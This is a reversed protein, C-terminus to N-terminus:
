KWLGEYSSIAVTREGWSFGADFGQSYAVDAIHNSIAAWVEVLIWAVVLSGFLVLVLLM